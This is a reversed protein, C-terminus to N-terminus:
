SGIGRLFDVVGDVRRRGLAWRGHDPRFLARFDGGGPQTLIGVSFTTFFDFVSNTGFLLMGPRIYDLEGTMNNWIPVIVQGTLSAGILAGGGGDADCRRHATFKDLWANRLVIGISSWTWRAFSPNV